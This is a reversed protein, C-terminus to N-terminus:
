SQDAPAGDAPQEPEAPPANPPVTGCGALPRKGVYVGNGDYEDVEGAWCSQGINCKVCGVRNPNNDLWACCWYHDATAGPYTDSGGKAPAALPALTLLGATTICLTAVTRRVIKFRYPASPYSLTM